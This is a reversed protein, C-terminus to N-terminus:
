FYNMLARNWSISPGVAAFQDIVPVIAQLAAGISAGISTAAQASDAGKIEALRSMDKEVGKMFEPHSQPTINFKVALCPKGSKDVM